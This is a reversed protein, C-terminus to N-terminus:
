ASSMGVSSTRLSESAVRQGGMKPNAVAAAARQVKIANILSNILKSQGGHSVLHLDAELTCELSDILPKVEFGM